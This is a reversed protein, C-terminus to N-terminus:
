DSLEGAKIKAMGMAYHEWLIQEVMEAKAEECDIILIVESHKRGKRANKRKGKIVLEIFLRIGVGLLFGFLASSLGWVIPGGPLIFGVSVGITSFATALAMGIDILSTGDARHLNDFLRRKENRNDLPVAFIDEHKIGTKELKSVALELYIHHDFTSFFQM